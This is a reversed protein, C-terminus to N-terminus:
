KSLEKNFEDGTSYNEFKRALAIIKDAVEEATDGDIGEHDVLKCTLKTAHALSNQRVISRDPHMVGVPFTKPQAGSGGGGTWPKKAPYGGGSSKTAGGTSAGMVINKGGYKFEWDLNVSAGVYVGEPLKFGCWYLESDGEVKFGKKIHGGRVSESILESVKGSVNPM